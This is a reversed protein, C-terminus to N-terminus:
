QARQQNRKEIVETVRRLGPHQYIRIVDMHSHGKADM